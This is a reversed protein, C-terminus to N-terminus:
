EHKYNFGRYKDIFARWDPNREYFRRNVDNEEQYSRYIKRVEKQITLNAAEYDEYTQPLEPYNEELYQVFEENSYATTMDTDNEDVFSGFTYMLNALLKKAGLIAARDIDNYEEGSINENQSKLNVYASDLLSYIGYYVPNSYEGMNSLFYIYKSYEFLADEPGTEGPVTPSQIGKIKTVLEQNEPINLFNKVRDNEEFYGSGDLASFELILNASMKNFAIGGLVSWANRDMSLAKLFGDPPENQSAAEKVLTTDILVRTADSANIEGDPNHNNGEIDPFLSIFREWTMTNFNDRLCYKIGNRYIVGETEDEKVFYVMFPDYQATGPLADYEERTVDCHLIGHEKCHCKCENWTM